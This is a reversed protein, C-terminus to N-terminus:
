REESVRVVTNLILRDRGGAFLTMLKAPPM